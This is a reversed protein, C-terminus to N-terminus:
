QQNKSDCWRFYFNFGNLLNFVVSDPLRVSTFICPGGGLNLDTCNKM